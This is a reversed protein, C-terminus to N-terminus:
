KEVVDKGRASPNIKIKAKKFVKDLEKGKFYEHLFVALAAVESHPQNGVAINYDSILYLQGPVKASGVVVLVDKNKRIKTMKKQIQEGYATLHIVPIGKKKANAIIPKWKEEYSVKFKGGWAASVQKVSEVLKDDKDGSFIVENAGLARASLGIHTSLRDDRKLRHELRLVTVGM